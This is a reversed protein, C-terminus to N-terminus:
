NTVEKYINNNISFKNYSLKPKKTKRNLKKKLKPYIKYIGAAIKM